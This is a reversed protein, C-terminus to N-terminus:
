RRSARRPRRGGTGFVSANVWWYVWIAFTPLGLAVVLGAILAMEQSATLYPDIAAYAGSLFAVTWVVAVLATKRYM